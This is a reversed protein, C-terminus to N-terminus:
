RYWDYLTHQVNISSVQIFEVCIILFQPTHNNFDKFIDFILRDKPFGYQKLLFITIIKTNFTEYYVRLITTEDDSGEGVINLFLFSWRM